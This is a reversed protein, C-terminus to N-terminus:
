KQQYIDIIMDVMRSEVHHTDVYSKAQMTVNKKLEENEMLALIADQVAIESGPAILLGTQGNKIIEPVGGVSTAIVPVNMAMSELIVLPMGESLSPLVFMDMKKFYSIVNKQHGAFEVRSGLGARDVFKEYLSLCPGDGVILLKYDYGSSILNKFANLLNLIGKKPDLRAITGICPTLTADSRAGDTVFFADDIGNYIVTIKKDCRNSILPTFVDSICQRLETKLQTAVVITKDLFVVGISHMLKSVLLKLSSKKGLSDMAMLEYSGHVTSVKKPFGAYLSALAGIFIPRIGHFHIVDPKLRILLRRLLIINNFAKLSQGMSDSLQYIEVNLSAFQDDLIDNCLSVISVTYSRSKLSEALRRVHSEVGGSGLSRLVLVVHLNKNKM